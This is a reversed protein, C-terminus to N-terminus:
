YDALWEHAGYAFCNEAQTPVHTQLTRYLNLVKRFSEQSQRLSPSLVLVLAAPEALATGLALAAAVANQRKAPLLQAFDHLWRGYCRVQWPDPEM